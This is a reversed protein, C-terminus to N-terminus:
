KKNKLFFTEEHEGDWKITVKISENETTVACGSCSSSMKVTAGKYDGEKQRTKGHTTEVLIELEQFTIDKNTTKFDFVYEGNESTENISTTYNGKWNVSEGSFHLSKTGCGVLFLIFMFVPMIVKNM